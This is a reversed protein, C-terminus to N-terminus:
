NEREIKGPGRLIKEEGGPDVRKRELDEIEERSRRM